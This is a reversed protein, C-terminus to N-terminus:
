IWAVLINAIARAGNSQAVINTVVGRAKSNLIPILTNQQYIKKIQRVRLRCYEPDKGM